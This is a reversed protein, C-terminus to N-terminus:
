RSGRAGLSTGLLTRCRFVRTFLDWLFSLRHLEALTALALAAGVQSVVGVLTALVVLIVIGYGRGCDLGNFGLLGELLNL